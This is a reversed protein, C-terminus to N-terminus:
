LKDSGLWAYALLIMELVALPLDVLGFSEITPAVVMTTLSLALGLIAGWKRLSWIAFAAVLRSLGYTASLTAWFVSAGQFQEPVFEAPAILMALAALEFIGHIALVASASRSALTKNM